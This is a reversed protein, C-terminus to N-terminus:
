LIFQYLKATLIQILKVVFFYNKKCFIFQIKIM